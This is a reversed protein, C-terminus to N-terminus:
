SSAGCVVHSVFKMGKEVEFIKNNDLPKFEGSKEVLDFEYDAPVGLLAKLESIRYEGGRIQMDNGDLNITIINKHEHKGHKKDDEKHESHM